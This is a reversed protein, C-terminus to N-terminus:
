IEHVEKCKIAHELKRDKLAEVLKRIGFDTNTNRDERFPAFVVLEEPILKGSGLEELLHAVSETMEEGAKERIFQITNLSVGLKQDHLTKM